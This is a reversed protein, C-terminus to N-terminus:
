RREKVPREVQRDIRGVRAVNRVKGPRSGDGDRTEWERYRLM